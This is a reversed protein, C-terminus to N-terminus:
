CLLWAFDEYHGKKMKDCSNNTNKFINVIEDYNLLFVIIRHYTKIHTNHIMLRYKYKLRVTSHSFLCHFFNNM